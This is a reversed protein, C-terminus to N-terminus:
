TNSFCEILQEIEAVSNYVHPSLRMGYQRSDFYVGRARMKEEILEQHNFKLVITGGKKDDSLPSTICEEPVSARIMKTLTQNHKQITSVGIKTILNISNAAVIYAAVSPTGGWFRATSQHYEFNDIKFEFPNKHSFWGVDIPELEAILERHIWMFGAGPGGCLWKICSGVVIDIELTALDIPVIGASQAVDMMSIIGRHRCLKTVQEVPTRANNNYLVHTLFVSHVDNTLADSWVQPSQLDASKPILKLSFGHRQAQQLVFGASPFDSESAVIVTRGDRKPLAQMVKALGSSVNSQPCFLDAESNFLTALAQNFNHIETLWHSWTDQNASKWPELYHQEIHNSTSRPMLGISHTLFYGGKPKHFQASYDVPKSHINPM